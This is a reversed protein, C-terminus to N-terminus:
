SQKSKQTQPPEDGDCLAGHQSIAAITSKFMEVERRCRVAIRKQRLSEMEIEKLEANSLKRGKTVRTGPLANLRELEEDSIHPPNAMAERCRLSREADALKVRLWCLLDSCRPQADADCKAIPVVEFEYTGRPTLAVRFSQVRGRKMKQALLRAHEAWWHEVSSDCVPCRAEYLNVGHECNVAM